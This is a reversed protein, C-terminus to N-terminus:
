VVFYSNCVVDIIFLYFIFIRKLTKVLEQLLSAFVSSPQQQQKSEENIALIHHKVLLHRPRWECRKERDFCACWEYSLM